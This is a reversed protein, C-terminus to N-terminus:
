HISFADIEELAHQCIFQRINESLLLTCLDSIQIQDAGNTTDLIRNFMNNLENDNGNSIDIHEEINFNVNINLLLM